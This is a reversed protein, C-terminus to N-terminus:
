PAAANSDEAQVPALATQHEAKITIIAPAGTNEGPANTGTQIDQSLIEDDSDLTLDPIEDFTTASYRETKLPTSASFASKKWNKVAQNKPIVNPKRARKQLRKKTTEGITAATRPRPSM